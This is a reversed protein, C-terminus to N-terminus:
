SARTSWKLSLVPVPYTGTDTGPVYGYRLKHEYVYMLKELFPTGQVPVTGAGLCCMAGVITKGQKALLSLVADQTRACLCWALSDQKAFFVFFM